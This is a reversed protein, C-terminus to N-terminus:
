GRNVFFNYIVAFVYFIVFSMIAAEIMGGIIGVLSLSFFLHWEAMQAVAGTYINLNGLIGLILMGAASITAGTYGLALTNFKQM